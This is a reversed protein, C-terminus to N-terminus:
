RAPGDHCWHEDGVLPREEELPWYASGPGSALRPRRHRWPTDASPPPPVLAGGRGTLPGSWRRHAPQRDGTPLGRALRPQACRGVRCALVRGGAPRSRLDGAAVPAPNAGPPCFNPVGLRVGRGGAPAGPRKASSPVLDAALTSREARWGTGVEATVPHRRPGLGPELEWGSCRSDSLRPVQFGAPVGGPRKYADEPRICALAYRLRAAQAVTGPAPGGLVLVRGTTSRGSGGEKALQM